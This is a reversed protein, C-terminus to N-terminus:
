HRKKAAKKALPVTRKAAPKAQKPRYFVTAAGKPPAPPTVSLALGAAAAMEPSMQAYGVTFQKEITNSAIDLRLTYRGEQPMPFPVFGFIVTASLGPLVTVKMPRVKSGPTGDPFVIEAHADHEGSPLGRGEEWTFGHRRDSSTKLGTTL